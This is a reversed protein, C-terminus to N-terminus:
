CKRSLLCGAVGGSSCGTGHATDVLAAFIAVLRLFSVSTWGVRRKDWLLPLLLDSGHLVQMNNLVASYELREEVEQLVSLSLLHGENIGVPQLPLFTPLKQRLGGFIVFVQEGGDAAVPWESWLFILVFFILFKSEDRVVNAHDVLLLDIVIGNCESLQEPPESLSNIKSNLIDLLSSSLFCFKGILTLFCDILFFFSDFKSILLKLFSLFFKSFLNGLLLSVSSLLFTTIILWILLFFIGLKLFFVEQEFEIIVIWRNLDRGFNDLIDIIVEIKLLFLLWSLSSSM